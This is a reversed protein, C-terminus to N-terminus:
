LKFEAVAEYRAHRTQSHLVYRYPCLHEGPERQEYDTAAIAEAEDLSAVVSIVEHNGDEDEVILVALPLDDLEEAKRGNYIKRTM